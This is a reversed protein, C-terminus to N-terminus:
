GRKASSKSTVTATWRQWITELRREVTRPSCSLEQSIEQTTYGDLKLRAVAQLEQTLQRLLWNCEDAVQAAFEPTPESGVVQQLRRLDDLDEGNGHLSEGHVRGGGRKRARSERAQNFAKRATITVLLPWLDRRDQM